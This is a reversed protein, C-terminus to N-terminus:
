NCDRDHSPNDGPKQCKSVVELFLNKIRTCLAHNTQFCNEIKWAFKPAQFLYFITQFPGFISFFAESFYLLIWLRDVNSFSRGIFGVCFQTSALNTCFLGSHTYVFIVKKILKQQIEKTKNSKM